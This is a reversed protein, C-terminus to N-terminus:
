REVTKTVPALVLSEVSFTMEKPLILTSLADSTTLNLRTGAPITIVTHVNLESFLGKREYSVVLSEGERTAAGRLKSKPARHGDTNSTITLFPGDRLELIDEGEFVLILEPASLAALETSLESDERLIRLTKDYPWITTGLVILVVLAVSLGWALWKPPAKSEPHPIWLLGRDLQCFKYFLLATFWMVAAAWIVDSAFHGGQTMRAIGVLTGFLLSFALAAWRRRGRLIPVLALFFFGVTAHGCPFSKGDSSPDIHLLREFAEAGNFETIQSPRPRGWHDKLIANTILGSGVLLVAFFYASLKRFKALSATGLGLVFVIGSVIALAIAPIPGFIYLARWFTAEGAEWQRTEPNYFPRELTLDLDSVIFPISLIALLLLPITIAARM